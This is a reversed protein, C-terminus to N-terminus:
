EGLTLALEREVWAGSGDPIIELVEVESESIRIIEGFNEGLHNGPKVTHITGDPDRILGWTSGRQELIGVMTMSDMPFFELPEKRREQDPRTGSEVVVQKDLDDQEKQLFPDREEIATYDHNEYREFEPYAKVDGKFKTKTELVFAELDSTSRSCGSLLLVIISVLLLLSAKNSIHKNFM